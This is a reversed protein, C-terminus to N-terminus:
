NFEFIERISNLAHKGDKEYINKLSKQNELRSLKFYDYFAQGLRQNGFKGFRYKDMFVEFMRKEITLKEKGM